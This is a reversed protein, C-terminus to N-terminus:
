DKKTPLWSPGLVIETAPRPSYCKYDAHPRWVPGRVIGPLPRPPYRKRLKRSKKVFPNGYESAMVGRAFDEFSPHKHFEFNNAGLSTAFDSVLHEMPTSYRKHEYHALPLPPADPPGYVYFWERALLMRQALDKQEETPDVIGVYDGGTVPNRCLKDYVPPYKEFLHKVERKILRAPRYLDYAAYLDRM